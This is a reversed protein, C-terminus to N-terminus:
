GWYGHILKTVSSARAGKFQRTWFEKTLNKAPSLDSLQDASEVLMIQQLKQKNSHKKIWWITTYYYVPTVHGGVYAFLCFVGQVHM